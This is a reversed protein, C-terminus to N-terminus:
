KTEKADRRQPSGHKKLGNAVIYAEIRNMASAVDDYGYNDLGELQCWELWAHYADSLLTQEESM